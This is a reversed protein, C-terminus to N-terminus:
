RTPNLDRSVRSERADNRERRRSGPRRDRHELRDAHSESSTYGRRPFMGVRPSRRAARRARFRNGAGGQDSWAAPRTSSRNWNQFGGKLANPWRTSVRGPPASPTANQSSNRRSRTLRPCCKWSVPAHIGPVLGQHPGGRNLHRQGPARRPTRQSTRDHTSDGTTSVGPVGPPRPPRIHPADPRRMERKTELPNPLAHACRPACTRRSPRSSVRERSARAGRM